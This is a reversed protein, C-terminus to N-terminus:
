QYRLIGSAAPYDNTKTIDNRYLLAYLLLYPVNCHHLIAMTVIILRRNSQLSRSSDKGDESSPLLSSFDSSFGPHFTNLGSCCKVSTHLWCIFVRQLDRAPNMHTMSFRSTTSDWIKMKWALFTMYNQEPHHFIM